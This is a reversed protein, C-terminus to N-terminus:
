AEPLGPGVLAHRPLNITFVCGEGSERGHVAAAEGMEYRGTDGGGPPGSIRHSRIPESTQELALTKILQDLFLPIGHELEQSTGKPASRQAVKLKCRAILEARHKALFQHMM